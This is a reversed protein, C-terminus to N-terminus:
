PTLAKMSRRKFSLTLAVLDPTAGAVLRPSKPKQKKRRL